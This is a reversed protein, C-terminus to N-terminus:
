TEVAIKKCSSELCDRPILGIFGPACGHCVTSISFRIVTVMM